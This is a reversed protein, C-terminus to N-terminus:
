SLFLTREAERRRTLGAVVQGGARDWRLIQTSVNDFGHALMQSLAGSGLNFTFSCLADHQNQNCDPAMRTVAADAPALDDALWQEAQPESCVTSSTVGNTHGWGCTWVGVSDQYATLRLSEFGKIFDIGNQSINM